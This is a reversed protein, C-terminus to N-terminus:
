VGVMFAKGMCCHVNAVGCMLFFSLLSGLKSVNSGVGLLVDVLRTKKSGRANV